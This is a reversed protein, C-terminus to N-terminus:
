YARKAHEGDNVCDESEAAKMARYMQLASAGEIAFYAHTRKPENPPPDIMSKGGIHFNGRLSSEQAAIGTMTVGGAGGLLAAVAVLRRVRISLLPDQM